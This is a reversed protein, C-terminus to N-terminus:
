IQSLLDQLMDDMARMVRSTAQYSRQFQIMRAVEEDLNVGIESDRQTNLYSLIASEADSDSQSAQVRAGITVTLDTLYNDLNGDVVEGAATSFERTALSGMALAADNSSASGVTNARLTTTTLGAELEISSATQGTALFFDEGAAGTPNYVANTAQVLQGAVADLSARTDAILGNRTSEIAALQGGNVRLPNADPGGVLKGDQWSLKLTTGSGELLNLNAGDETTVVLNIMGNEQPQAVFDMHKALEELAQQRQSELENAQEQQKPGLSSIQRNYQAILSLQENVTGIELKAQNDLDSQLDALREDTGRLSEVLTQANELVQAKASSNNPAAALADWSSFFAQLDGRLGGSLTEESAGELTSLAETNGLTDGLLTELESLIEAEGEYRSAVSQERVIQADLMSNRVDSYGTVSLGTSQVSRGQTYSNSSGVQVVQRAYGQTNVNAINNGTVQLARGYTNLAQANTSIGHLLSM